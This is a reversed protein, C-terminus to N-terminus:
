RQPTWDKDNLVDLQEIWQLVEHEEQADLATIQKAIQLRVEPAQDDIVWLRVERMPLGTRKDRPPNHDSNEPTKRRTKPM